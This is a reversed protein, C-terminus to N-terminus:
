VLRRTVRDLLYSAFVILQAAEQRSLGVERHSTPNKAHGIAGIFLSMEAQREAPAAAKDTLPGDEPNFARSMLDRGYLNNCGESGLHLAMDRVSVEVEKFAQFVATDHDGRAFLHYVKEALHSQLLLKPLTGARRYSELDVRSKLRKGRRTLQFWDAPQGPDRIVLGESVMWAMAEAVVLDIAERKAYPYGSQQPGPPPATFAGPVFRPGHSIGPILEILIGAIEEPEMALLLDADPIQSYLPSM